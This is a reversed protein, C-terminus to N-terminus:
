SITDRGVQQIKERLGPIAYVVTPYSKGGITQLNESNTIWYNRTDGTVDCTINIPECIVEWRRKRRRLISVQM